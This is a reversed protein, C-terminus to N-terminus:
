DTDIFCTPLKGYKEFFITQLQGMYVHKKLFDIM